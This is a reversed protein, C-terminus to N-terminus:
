SVALELLRFLGGEVVVGGEHATANLRSVESDDRYVTLQQELEDIRDLARGGLDAGGPTNAAIRVEFFSGMGPRGVRLLDSSSVPEDSSPISPGDQRRRRLRLLDRRNVQSPRHRM